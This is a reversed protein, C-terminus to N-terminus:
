GEEQKSQEEKGKRRESWHLKLVSSGDGDGDGEGEKENGEANEGEAGQCCVVNNSSVTSPLRWSICPCIGMEVVSHPSLRLLEIEVVYYTLEIKENM